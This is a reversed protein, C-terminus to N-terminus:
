LMSAVDKATGSASAQTATGGGSQQKSQRNLIPTKEIKEMFTTKIDEGKANTGDMRAWAEIENYEEFKAGAEHVSRVFALFPKGTLGQVVTGEVKKGYATIEEKKTTLQSTDVNTAQIIHKFTATGIDNPTGDKKKTNQYVDITRDEDPIYVKCLLMGAGKDTVFTALQKVEAKYVNSPLVEFAPRVVQEEAENYVNADLGLEDFITSM